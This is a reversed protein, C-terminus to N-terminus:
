EIEKAWINQILRLKHHVTQRARGLREAIEKNTHGDMKWLAVSRLEEDDLLALLRQCEEAMM